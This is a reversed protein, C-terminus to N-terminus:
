LREWGMVEHRNQVWWEEIRWRQGTEDEVVHRYLCGMVGPVDTPFRELLRTSHYTVIHPPTLGGPRDLSTM